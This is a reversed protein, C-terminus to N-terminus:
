PVSEFYRKLREEYGRPPLRRSRAQIAARLEPPLRAMWVDVGGGPISGDPRTGEAALKGRSDAQAAEATELDGAPPKQNPSDAGKQVAGGRRASASAKGEPSPADGTGSRGQGQGSAGSGAEGMSAAQAAAQAQPGAIQRATVQPSAPVLQTGLAREADGQSQAGKSGAPPADGGGQSAASADAPGQGAPLANAADAQNASPGSAASAPPTPPGNADGAPQGSGAEPRDGGAPQPVPQPLRLASALQLAERLPVNAVEVQGSVETAAQGTVTQAFAFQHEAQLLQGALEQRQAAQAAAAEAADAPQDVAAPPRELQPGIQAITERAAQQALALSALLQALEEDRRLRGERALLNATAQEWKEDVRASADASPPQPPSGKAARRALAEAQALATAAGADAQAAVPQVAQAAAAQKDWAERQQQALAALASRVQSQAQALADVAPDLSPMAESAAQADQLAAAAGRLREAVRAAQLGSRRAVDSTELAGQLAQAAQELQQALAKRAQADPPGAPAQRAQALYSPLAQDVEALAAMLEHRAAQAALHRGHLLERAAQAAQQSARQLTTRWPSNTAATEALRDAVAQQAVAAALPDASRGSALEEAAADAAAQQARVQALQDELMQAAAQPGRGAAQTATVHAQRLADAAAQWAALEQAKPAQDVPRAREVQQRVGETQERQRRALVGLEAAAQGQARRLLAAAEVLAAHHEQARAAVATRRPDALGSDEVAAVQEVLDRTAQALPVLKEHAPPATREVGAAVKAVVAAVQQQEQALLGPAAAATGRDDPQSPAPQGALTLAASPEALRRAIERQTAAARELTEAARALEGVAVAKQRRQKDALASAVEAKLQTFARQAAEGAARLADPAGDQLLQQWALVREQTQSFQAAVPAPGPEALPRASTLGEALAQVQHDQDPSYPWAQSLRRLTQHLADLRAVEEALADASKDGFRTGEAELLQELHALHSLVQAQQALAPEPREQFLESAAALAAEQAAQLHPTATPFRRLMAALQGLRRHLATQGDVLLAAQSPAAMTHHTRQRLAQQQAALERVLAMAAERGAADLGQSSELEALLLALADVVTQQGQVAAAFDAQALAEAVARLAGETQAVRVLALGRAASDATPGGWSRVDELMALLQYYGHHVDAQDERVALALAPRQSAEAGLLARTAAQTKTQRALLQRVDAALHAVKLRRYIRQRQAMLAAVVERVKERVAQTLAPQEEAPVEALQQLLTAIQEMPQSAIESLHRKMEAIERYVPLGALGNEELQKLQVELVGAVLAEAAARAQQQAQLKRQWPTPEAGAVLAATV